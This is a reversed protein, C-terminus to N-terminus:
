LEFNEYLRFLEPTKKNPFYGSMDVLQGRKKDTLIILETFKKAQTTLIEDIEDWDHPFQLKQLLSRKVLYVKEVSESRIKCCRIKLNWGHNHTKRFSPKHFNTELLPAVIPLNQDVLNKVTKPDELIANSHLFLFFESKTELNQVEQVNELIIISKYNQLNKSFNGGFIFLNMKEKPYSQKDFNTFFEELFLPREHIFLFQFKQFIKQNKLKTLNQLRISSFILNTEQHFKKFYSLHFNEPQIQFLINVIKEKQTSLLIWMEGHILMLFYNKM